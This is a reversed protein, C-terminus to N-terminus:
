SEVNILAGLKHKQIKGSATLPFSKILQVRDPIKYRAVKNQLFEVLEERTICEYDPKLVIFACTREVLEPDPYGVISVEAIKEHAYLLSEIEDPYINHGGRVIMDKNRGIVTIYGWENMQGLDGVHVWGQEDFVSKTREPDLYYGLGNGFSRSFIEGVQGIDVMKGKDGVIKVEAGGYIPSGSTNCITELSDDLKTMTAHGMESAGYTMTISCGFREKIDHMMEYPAAAGGIYANRVSSVDFASFRAHKLMRIFMTPVGVPSTVKYRDILELTELTDFSEMLVLTSKSIIPCPEIYQLGFASSLPLMDLWVEDETVKRRINSSYALRCITNHTHLVGKPTGTTGSTYVIAALDDAEVPHEQLYNTVTEGAHPNHDFLHAFPIMGSLIEGKVLMYKLCPLDQRISDILQAFSFGGYESSMIIAKADSHELTTKIEIERFNIHMLVKVAGIKMIAQSVIIYEPWNPMLIGVRDGYGIGLRLLAAAFIDVQAVLESYTIILDKYILATKDGAEKAAINLYQSLTKGAPVVGDSQSHSKL